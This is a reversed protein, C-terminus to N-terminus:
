ALPSGDLIALIRQVGSPFVRNKPTFGGTGNVHASLQRDSGPPLVCIAPVIWRTLAAPPGTAITADVLLGSGPREGSPVLITKASVAPGLCSTTASVLPRLSCVNVSM